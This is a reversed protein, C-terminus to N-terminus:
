KMGPTEASLEAKLMKVRLRKALRKAESPVARTTVLVAQANPPEGEALQTARLTARYKICQFIGRFMESDPANSAKVEVALRTESNEFYADLYDGSRLEQENKGPKFQGYEAFFKPNKAVWQKLAQHQDSEGYCGNQRPLPPLQIPEDDQKTELLVQVPALKKHGFHKAVADWETYDKVSDMAEAALANRNADTLRRRAHRNLFRKIYANAGHGPLHTQANVVIANLPPIDRDWEESLRILADGIKGAPRGYLTMRRKIEEGHRTHLEEALQKYTISRGKKAVWLLIPLALRTIHSTWEVGSALFERADLEDTPKM